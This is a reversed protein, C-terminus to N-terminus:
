EQNRLAEIISVARRVDEPSAGKALRFLMRMDDRSRLDELLDVLDDDDTSSTSRASESHLRPDDTDFGYDIWDQIDLISFLDPISINMGSCLKTFTEMSPVLQRKSQPHRGHELMSVYGSSLGCRDAFERMSLNNTERYRKIIENLKM